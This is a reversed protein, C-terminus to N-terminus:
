KNTRRKSKVPITYDNIVSAYGSNLKIPIGDRYKKDFEAADLVGMEKIIDGIGFDIYDDRYWGRNSLVDIDYRDQAPSIFGLDELLRLESTFSHIKHSDNLISQYRMLTNVVEHANIEQTRVDSAVRFIHPDMTYKNILYLSRSLDSNNIKYNRYPDNYSELTKATGDITEKALMSPDWNPDQMAIVAKDGYTKQINTEMTKILAAQATATAAAVAFRKSQWLFGGILLGGSITILILAKWYHRFFTAVTAKVEKKKDERVSDKDEESLTEDKMEDAIQELNEVHEEMDKHSETAAKAVTVIAAVGVVLGGVFLGLPANAIAFAKAAVLGAKITGLM